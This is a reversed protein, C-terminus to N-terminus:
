KVETASWNRKDFLPSQVSGYSFAIRVVIEGEKCLLSPSWAKDASAKAFAPPHTRM